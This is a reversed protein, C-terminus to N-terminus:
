RSPSLRPAKSKETFKKAGIMRRSANQFAPYNTVLHPLVPIKTSQADYLEPGSLVAFLHGAIEESRNVAAGSKAQLAWVKLTGAHLTEARM